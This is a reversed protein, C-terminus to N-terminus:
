SFYRELRRKMNGVDFLQTISVWIKNVNVNWKKKHMINKKIKHMHKCYIKQKCDFTKLTHKWIVFILISFRGSRTDTIGIAMSPTSFSSTSVYSIRATIEPLNEFRNLLQTTKKKGLLDGKSLNRDLYKGAWKRHLKM